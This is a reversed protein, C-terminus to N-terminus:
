CGVCGFIFNLFNFILNCGSLVDQVKGGEEYGIKVNGSEAWKRGSM